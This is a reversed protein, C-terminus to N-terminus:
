IHEEGRFSRLPIQDEEESDSLEESLLARRAGDLLGSREVDVTPVLFSVGNGRRCGEGERSMGIVVKDVVILLLFSM